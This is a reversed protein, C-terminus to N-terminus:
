SSLRDRAFSCAKAVAKTNCHSIDCAVGPTGAIDYLSLEKVNPNLQVDDCYQKRSRDVIRANATWLGAMAIHEPIVPCCSPRGSDDYMDHLACQSFRSHQCLNNACTQCAWEAPLGSRLTCYVRAKMLLSLPQGIGGAAGLVAVKYGDQAATAMGRTGLGRLAERGLSLLASAMGSWSWCLRVTLDFM